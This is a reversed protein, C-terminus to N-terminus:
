ARGARLTRRPGYSPPSASGRRAALRSRLGGRRARRPEGAHARASHEIENHVTTALVASLPHM